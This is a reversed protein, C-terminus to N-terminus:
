DFYISQTRSYGWRRQNHSRQREEALEEVQLYYGLPDSSQTRLQPLLHEFGRTTVGMKEKPASRTTPPGHTVRYGRNVGSKDGHFSCPKIGAPEEEGLWPASTLCPHPICGPSGLSPKGPIHFMEMWLLSRLRGPWGQGPCPLLDRQPLDPHKRVSSLDIRPQSQGSYLPNPQEPCTTHASGAPLSQPSATSM